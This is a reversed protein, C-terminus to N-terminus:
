FKRAYSFAVSDTDLGEYRTYDVRIGDRQSLAYEAGIGYAINDREVGNDLNAYYYGIRGLVDLRNTVPARSVAFAGVTYDFNGGFADDGDLGISGEVEAGLHRTAQYGGRLQVGVADTDVDYWNLGANGYFRSSKRPGFQGRLVPIGGLAAADLVPNFGINHESFGNAVNHSTGHTPYSTSVHQQAGYAEATPYCNDQAVGAYNSPQSYTIQECSSPASAYHQQAGVYEQIPHGYINSSQASYQGSCGYCGDNGGSAGFFGNSGGIMSCGSLLAGSLALIAIRM